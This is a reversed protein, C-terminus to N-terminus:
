LEIHDVGRWGDLADMVTQLAAAVPEAHLPERELGEIHGFLAQRLADPGLVRQLLDALLREFEGPTPSIRLQDFLASLAAFLPLAEAGLGHDEPR